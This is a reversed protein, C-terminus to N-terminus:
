HLASIEKLVVDKETSQPTLHLSNFRGWNLEEISYRLHSLKLHYLTAYDPKSLLTYEPRYPLVNDLFKSGHESTLLTITPCLNLQSFDNLSRTLLKLSCPTQFIEDYIVHVPNLPTSQSEQILQLNLTLLLTLCDRIEPTYKLRPFYFITLKGPKFLQSLNYDITPKNSLLTKIRFDRFILNFRRLLSGAVSLDTEGTEVKEIKISATGREFPKSVRERKNLAQLLGLEYDTLLPHDKLELAKLHKKRVDYDAIFQYLDYFTQNPKTFVVKCAASLISKSAGDLSYEGLNELILLYLQYLREIKSALEITPISNAIVQGDTLTLAFNEIVEPKSFDWIQYFPKEKSFSDTTILDISFDNDMFVVATQGSKAVELAQNM